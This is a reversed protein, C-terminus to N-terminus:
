SAPRLIREEVQDRAVKHLDVVKDSRRLWQVRLSIRMDQQDKSQVVYADGRRGEAIEERGEKDNMVYLQMGMDYVFVSNTFGPFFFHTKPTLPEAKVGDGWTELVGLENGSVTRIKVFMFTAVLLAVLGLVVVLKTAPNTPENDYSM